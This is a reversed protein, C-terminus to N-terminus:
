GTRKRNSESLRENLTRSMERIAMFRERLNAARIRANQEALEANALDARVIDAGTMHDNVANILATVTPFRKRANRKM